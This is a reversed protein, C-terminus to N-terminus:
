FPCWCLSHVALHQKFLVTHWYCHKWRPRLNLLSHCSAECLCSQITGPDNFVYDQVPPWCESVWLLGPLDLHNPFKIHSLSLYSKKLTPHPSAYSEGERGSVGFSKIELTVAKYMPTYFLSYTRFEKDWPTVWWQHPWTLAFCCWIGHWEKDFRLGEWITLGFAQSCLKFEEWENFRQKDKLGYNYM